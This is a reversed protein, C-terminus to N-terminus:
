LNQEGIIRILERRNSASTKHLINKIHFRVTSASLNCQEAIEEATLSSMIFPMLEKEKRTFRINLSEVQLQSTEPVLCDTIAIREEFAVRAAEYQDIEKQHKHKEYLIILEIMVILCAIAALLIGGMVYRYASQKIFLFFISGICLGGYFIGEGFVITRSSNQHIRAYIVLTIVVALQLFTSGLYSFFSYSYAFKGDIMFVIMTQAICICVIAFPITIRLSLKDFLVGSVFYMVGMMPLTFLGVYPLNMWDDFFYLNDMLGAILVYIIILSMATQIFRKSPNWEEQDSSLQKM